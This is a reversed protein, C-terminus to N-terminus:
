RLLSDLKEKLLLYKEENEPYLDVFGPDAKVKIAKPHHSM